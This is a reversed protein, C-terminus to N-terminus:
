GLSTPPVLQRPRGLVDYVVTLTDRLMSTDRCARSVTSAGEYASVAFRAAILAAAPDWGEAELATSMAAIWGSFVADGAERIGQVAEPAETAPVGIPCGFRFDSAEMDAILAEYFAVVGAAVSDSEDLIAALLTTSATGVERVAAEALEEKGGPFFHYMSGATADARGLVDKIASSGYGRERLSESMAGVLRDRVSM